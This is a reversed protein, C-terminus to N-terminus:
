NTRSRTAIWRLLAEPDCGPCVLRPTPAGRRIAPLSSIFASWSEPSNRKVYNMLGTLQFTRRAADYARVDVPRVTTEQLAHLISSTDELRFASRGDKGTMLVDIGPLGTLSVEGNTTCFSAQSTVDNINSKSSAQDLVHGATREDDVEIKFLQRLKHVTDTPKVYLGDYTTSYETLIPWVLMDARILLEGLATDVFAPHLEVQRLGAYRLDIPADVLSLSVLAPQGSEVFRAISAVEADSAALTSITGQSTLALAGNPRRGPRYDLQMPSTALARCPTASNGFMVGGPLQEMKKFLEGVPARTGRYNNKLPNPKAASSGSVGGSGGGPAGSGGPTVRGPADAGTPDPVYRSERGATVKAVRAELWVGLSKRANPTDLVFHHGSEAFIRGVTAADYRPQSTENLFLFTVYGKAKLAAAAHRAAVADASTFSLFVRSQRSSTSWAQLFSDPSRGASPTGSAIGAVAGAHGAVFERMWPANTYAGGPRGMPMGVLRTVRPRDGMAVYATQGRVVDIGRADLASAIPDLVADPRAHRDLIERANLTTVILVLAVSVM